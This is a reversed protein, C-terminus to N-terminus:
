RVQLMLQSLQPDHEQLLQRTNIGSNVDTRVTAGFWAQSGEAWYEDANELMYCGSYCCLVALLLLLLDHITSAHHSSIISQMVTHVMVLMLRSTSLM